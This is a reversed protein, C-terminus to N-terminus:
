PLFRARWPVRRLAGAANTRWGHACTVLGSAPLIRRELADRRTVKFFRLSDSYMQAIHMLRIRPGRGLGPWSTWGATSPM